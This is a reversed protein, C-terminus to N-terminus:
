LLYSFCTTAPQFDWESWPVFSALQSHTNIQSWVSAKSATSSFSSLTGKGPRERSSGKARSKSTKLTTPSSHLPSQAEGQERGQAPCSLQPTQADRPGRYSGVLTQKAVSWCISGQFASGFQGATAQAKSVFRRPLSHQGPQMPCPCPRAHSWGHQCLQTWNGKREWKIQPFVVWIPPKQIM